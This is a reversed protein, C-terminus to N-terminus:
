DGQPLSTNFVLKGVRDFLPRAACGFGPTSREGPPRVNTAQAEPGQFVRGKTGAARRGAPVGSAVGKTAEDSRREGIATQHCSVRGVSNDRSKESEHACTEPEPSPVRGGLREKIRRPRVTCIAKTAVSARVRRTTGADTGGTIGSGKSSRAESKTNGCKANRM